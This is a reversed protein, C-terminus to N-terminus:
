PLSEVALALGGRPSFYPGANGKKLQLKANLERNAKELKDIHEQQAAIKLKAKRFCFVM